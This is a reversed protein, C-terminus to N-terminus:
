YTYSYSNYKTLRAQKASPLQITKAPPSPPHPLVLVFSSFPIRSFSSDIGSHREIDYDVLDNQGFVTWTHGTSSKYAWEIFLYHM